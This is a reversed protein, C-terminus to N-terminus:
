GPLQQCCGTTCYFGSPCPDLGPVGCPQVGPPCQPVAGGSGGSGGGAGGAGGAGAGGGAGGENCEPPLETKGICLECPECPNNCGPVPTCPKCANPDALNALTCTGEGAANESGLWVHKGSGAPLECCGFCDCGNPVFPKCQDYCDQSQMMSLEACSLPTGPTNANPDYTCANESEPNLPDCEHNWYCGDNGSGSNSDFYCDVTCDPGAQGPIGGYFSNETNDCPGLCDPDASDILGDNDNDLQDGCEYLQAGCPALPPVGGSGGVAGGAAGGAGGAAGGAGATAGGAGGAAGGTGGAGGLAGSGGAGGSAGGAGGTNTSPSDSCSALSLSALAVLPLLARRM